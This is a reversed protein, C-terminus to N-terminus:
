RNSSTFSPKSEKLIVDFLAHMKEKQVSDLPGIWAIADDNNTFAAKTWNASGTAVLTDDVFLLKHHLLGNRKSVRCPVGERKLAVFAKKSTQRASDFDFVCLVDIGRNKARILAAVLDPHTFTYIAVKISKKAGDLTEILKELSKPQDPLFYFELNQNEGELLIPPVKTRKNEEIALIKKEIENAFNQSAVGIMLNAHLFFSEKTFNTSGFWVESHDIVVIKHHMLGRDRRAHLHVKPGLKWSLDQTAIADYIIRVDVGEEAKTKLTDILEDDALTFIMMSISTKARSCAAIATKELNDGTQNSYFSIPAKESPLVIKDERFLFFNILMIIIMMTTALPYRLQKELFKLNEATTKTMICDWLGEM